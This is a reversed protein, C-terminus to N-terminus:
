KCEARQLLNERITMNKNTKKINKLTHSLFPHPFKIQVTVCIGPSLLMSDSNQTVMEYCLLNSLLFSIETDQM